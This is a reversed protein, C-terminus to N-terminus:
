KLGKKVFGLMLQTLGEPKAHKDSAIFQDLSHPNQTYLKLIGTRVPYSCGLAIM